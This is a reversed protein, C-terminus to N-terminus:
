ELGHYLAMREIFLNGDAGLFCIDDVSAQQFSTAYSRNLSSHPNSQMSIGKSQISTSPNNQPSIMCRYRTATDVAIYKEV